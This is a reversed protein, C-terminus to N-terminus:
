LKRPTYSYAFFPPSESSFGDVVLLSVYLIHQFLAPVLYFGPVLIVFKIHPSPIFIFFNELPSIMVYIEELRLTLFIQLLIRVLATWFTCDNCRLIGVEMDNKVVKYTLIKSLCSNHNYPYAM